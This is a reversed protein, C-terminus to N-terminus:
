GPPFIGIECIPCSVHVRDVPVAEDGQTIVTRTARRDPVMTGGCRPCAPHEDRYAAGAHEELLRARVQRLQIEVAAEMEAFTARPHTAQWSALTRRVEDLLDDSKREM